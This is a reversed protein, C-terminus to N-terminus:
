GRRDERFLHMGSDVCCACHRPKYFIFNETVRSPKGRHRPEPEYEMAETGADVLELRPPTEWPLTPLDPELM